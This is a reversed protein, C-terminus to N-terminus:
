WINPILITQVVKNENYGYLYTRGRKEPTYFTVGNPVILYPITWDSLYFMKMIVDSWKEGQYWSDAKKIEEKLNNPIYELQGYTPYDYVGLYGNVPALSVKWTLKTIDSLSIGDFIILGSGLGDAEDKRIEADWHDKKHLFFVEWKGIQVNTLPPCKYKEREQTDPTWDIEQADGVLLKGTTVILSGVMKYNLSLFSGNFKFPESDNRGVREERTLQKYFNDYETIHNKLENIVEFKSPPDPKEDELFAKCQMDNLPKWWAGEPIEFKENELQKYDLAHRGYYVGNRFDVIKIVGGARKVGPKIMRAISDDFPEDSHWRLNVVKGIPLNTKKSM